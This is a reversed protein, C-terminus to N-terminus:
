RTDRSRRPAAPLLWLSVHEPQITEEVVALLHETLRTLDVEGRLAVAFDALTREADVKRRYFRRDIAAQIGRRLPTSLAVVLLTSTVVVVPQQGAQGTLARVAAQGALVFGIYAAALLATLTGYVLTLRILVDVDWLRYRLIAIGVCLPCFLWLLSYVPRALVLYLSDPQGLAPILVPLSFYVSAVLLGEVVSLVVWKTQQREVPTSVRRYRYFQTGMIGAAGLSILAAFTGVVLPSVAREMYASSPLTVIYVVFLAPVLAVVWRMWGPVFRGDPFLAFVLLFLAVSLIDLALAAAHWAPAGYELPTTPPSGNMQLVGQVLLLLSTLLALWQRSQRWAILAAVAFWALASIVSVCMSALAYGDPSVHFQGLARAGPQTLQWPACVAHLCVTRLQAGYAPLSVLFFAMILAAVTAWGARAFVLRRGHLHLPEAAPRVQVPMPTPTAGRATTLSM